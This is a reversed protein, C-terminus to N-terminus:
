AYSSRITPCAEIPSCTIGQAIKRARIKSLARRDSKVFYRTKGEITATFRHKRNM